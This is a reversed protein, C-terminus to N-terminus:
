GDSFRLCGCLRHGYGIPYPSLHLCALLKGNTSARAVLALAILLRGRSQTPWGPSRAARLDSGLTDRDLAAFDGFHSKPITSMM